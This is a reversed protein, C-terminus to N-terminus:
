SRQAGDSHRGGSADIWILRESFGTVVACLTAGPVVGDAQSKSPSFRGDSLQIWIQGREDRSVSEVVGRNVLPPV